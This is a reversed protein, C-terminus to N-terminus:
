DILNQTQLTLLVRPITGEPCWKYSARAGTSHSYYQRKIEHRNRIPPTHARLPIKSSKSKDFKLTLPNIFGM